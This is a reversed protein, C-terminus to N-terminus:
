LHPITATRLALIKKGRKNEEPDKTNTSRAQGVLPYEYHHPTPLSPYEYTHSSPESTNPIVYPDSTNPIVYTEPNHPRLPDSINPTIYPESEKEKLELNAGAVNSSEAQEEEM